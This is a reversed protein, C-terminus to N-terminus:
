EYKYNFLKIDEAYTKAVEEILEPTYFKRYDYPVSVNVSLRPLETGLLDSFLDFIDIDELRHVESVAIKGKSDTLYEYQQKWSGARWHDKPVGHALSPLPKQTMWDAFSLHSKISRETDRLYVYSSVCRRWPNRVFALSHERLWGESQAVTYPFHDDFKGGGDTYFYSFYRLRRSHTFYGNPQPLYRGFIGKAITSGANKPIHFCTIWRDNKDPFNIM